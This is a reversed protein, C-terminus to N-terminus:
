ERKFDAGLNDSRNVTSHSWTIVVGLYALAHSQKIPIISHATAPNVTLRETEKIKYRIVIEPM